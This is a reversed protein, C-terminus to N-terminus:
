IGIIIGWKLWGIIFELSGNLERTHTVKVFPLIYFQGYIKSISFNFNQTAKM